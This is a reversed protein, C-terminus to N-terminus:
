SGKMKELTAEADLIEETLEQAKIELEKTTSSAELVAKKANKEAEEALTKMYEWKEMQPYGARVPTYSAHDVGLNKLVSLNIADKIAQLCKKQTVPKRINGEQDFKGILINLHPNSTNDHVNIFSDSVLSKINEKISVAIANMIDGAIMRWQDGTPRVDSPLSLVFSQAFTDVPRGGKAAIRKKAEKKAARETQKVALVLANGHIPIIEETKNKHNAHKPDDLYKAYSILGGSGKKISDAKVTWNKIAM